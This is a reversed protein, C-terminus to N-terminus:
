WSYTIRQWCSILLLTLKEIAWILLLLWICIKYQRFISLTISHQTFPKSRILECLQNTWGCTWLTFCKSLGKILWLLIRLFRVNNILIKSRTFNINFKSWKYIQNCIRTVMRRINNSRLSKSSWKRWIICCTQIISIHLSEGHISVLIILIQNVPHINLYIWNLIYSEKCNTCISIKVLIGVSSSKSRINRLHLIM